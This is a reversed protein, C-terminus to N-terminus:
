KLIAASNQSNVLIDFIKKTLKPKIFTLYGHASFWLTGKKKRKKKKKKKKQLNYYMRFVMIIEEITLIAV